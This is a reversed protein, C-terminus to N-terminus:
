ANKEKIIKRLERSGIEQERSRGARIMEVLSALTYLKEDKLCANPLTPYFPKLAAGKIEGEPHPWVFIEDKKFSVFKFGPRAFATPIGISHPGFEPPFIYKLGHILFEICAEKSIDGDSTLLSSLKLRKMGHSVEASSVELAFSLEKQSLGPATIVKLLLLIDQPKPGNFTRM